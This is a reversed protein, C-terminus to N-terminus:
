TATSWAKPMRPRSRRPLSGRFNLVREFPLKPNDRLIHHLDPGEVYAMSIFKVAGVEGM